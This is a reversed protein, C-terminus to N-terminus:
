GAFHFGQVFFFERATEKMSGFFVVNGANLRSGEDARSFFLICARGVVPAVGFFHVCFEGRHVVANHFATGHVDDRIGHTRDTGREGFYANLQGVRDVNDEIHVSDRICM